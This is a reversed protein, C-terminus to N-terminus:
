FSRVNVRACNVGKIVDETTEAFLVAAPLRVPMFSLCHIIFCRTNTLNIMLYVYIPHM